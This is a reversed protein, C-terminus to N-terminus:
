SANTEKFHKWMQSEKMIELGLDQAKNLKTGADEGYIVIDTKKSVSNTVKAGYQELKAKIIERSSQMSGTIVM